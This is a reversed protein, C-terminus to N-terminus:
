FLKSQEEKKSRGRPRPPAKPATKGSEPEAVVEKGDAAATAEKHRMVAECLASPDDASVMYKQEHIDEIMVLGRWSTVYVKIFDWSRPALWYGFWGFVGPSAFVPVLVGLESREICRVSRIHHYPIHTIEVFCGIEVADPAVRISRPVSLLALAVVSLAISAFWVPLYEGPSFLWLLGVVLVVGGLVSWTIIRGRRDLRYKFRLTTM